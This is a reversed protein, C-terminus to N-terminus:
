QCRVRIKRLDKTRLALVSGRLELATVHGWPCRYRCCVRTGPVLGFAKLRQGLVPDVNVQTVVAAVGPRVCDLGTEM